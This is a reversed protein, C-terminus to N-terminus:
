KNNSNKEISELYKIIAHNANIPGSIKGGVVKDKLYQTANPDSNIKDIVSKLEADTLPDIGTAVKFSSAPHNLGWNKHNKRNYEGLSELKTKASSLLRSNEVDSTYAHPLRPNEVHSAYANSRLEADRSLKLRLNELRVAEPDHTPFSINRQIEKMTNEISEKNFEGISSVQNKAYIEDRTLNISKNLASLADEYMKLQSKWYDQDSVEPTGPRSGRPAYEPRGSNYNPDRSPGQGSDMANYLKAKKDELIYSVDGLKVKDWGYWLEYLTLNGKTGLYDTLLAFASTNLIWSSLGVVVNNKFDCFNFTLNGSIMYKVSAVLVITFLAALFKNLTFHKLFSNKKRNISSVKKIQKKKFIIFHKKM